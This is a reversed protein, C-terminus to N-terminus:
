LSRRAFRGVLFKERLPRGDQAAPRMRMVKEFIIAWCWFSCFLLLIMVLKVIVDAELFLRFISLDPSVGEGYAVSSVLAEEM